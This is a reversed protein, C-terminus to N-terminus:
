LKQIKVIVEPKIRRRKRVLLLQDIQNDNRYVEAYELADLLCKQGNDIDQKPGRNGPYLHVVVALRCTLRPPPDGLQEWVHEAVTYRYDRGQKSLYKIPMWREYEKGTKPNTLKRKVATQNYYHNISLPMPLRLEIDFESM